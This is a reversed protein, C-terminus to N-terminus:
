MKSTIRGAMRATKVYPHSRVEDMVDAIEEITGRMEEGTAAIRAGGESIRNVTSQVGDGFEKFQNIWPEMDKYFYRGTKYIQYGTRLFFFFMLWWLAVGALIVLLAIAVLSM